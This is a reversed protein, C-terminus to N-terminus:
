VPVTSLNSPHIKRQFNANCDCTKNNPCLLYCRSQNRQQNYNLELRSVKIYQLIHVMGQRSSKPLFELHVNAHVVISCQWPCTDKIQLLYCQVITPDDLLDNM